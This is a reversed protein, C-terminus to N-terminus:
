YGVAVGEGRPDAAGTYRGDADLGVAAVNWTFRKAGVVHGRARLAEIVDAPIGAPDTDIRDPVWQEHIRPADVAEQVTMGHDVVNLVTQLVATIIRAGGPSGVVLRPRPGAPVDEVITPCMSSLPRKGGAPANAEDGVLGYQNPIGPALAFDDIENNLLVGTGPAVIAAGFWSNLTTTLSVAGGRADAISIHLTNSGEREPSGPGLEAAPTARDDRISEARKALYRPDLLAKWPVKVFEPDGLFRGRDAFARRLCEAIRHDTLSSGAGSAALDFRELMGLTQLLVIGGSSPLPFTVIRRGRYRGELPTRLTVRYAALDGETMVGGAARVAAVIARAMEGQYFARPGDGAIARLTRALDKQVLRDGERLPAGDRTFIARAAPDAALRANEEAYIEASKASVTVGEEALRIAPALLEAWPRAGWRERAFALGAVSGPVAVALGGERGKMPDVKGSADLFSAATLARPATERFDLAQFSGDPARYLLFGGGAINGARPYSAALAFAVAVAADVANGGRQLVALGVAAAEREPAVVMGRAGTAPARSAAQLAAPVVSAVLLVVLAARVLRMRIM